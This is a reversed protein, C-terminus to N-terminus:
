QRSLGIAWVSVTQAAPPPRHGDAQHCDQVSLQLGHVRHPQPHRQGPDAVPHLGDGQHRPQQVWFLIVSFWVFM